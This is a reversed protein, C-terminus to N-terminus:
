RRGRAAATEDFDFSRSSGPEQGVDILHVGPVSALRGFLEPPIVTRDAPGHGRHVAVKYDGPLAAIEAAWRAALAPEPKLYRGRPLTGPTIGLLGPLSMLYAHAEVPEDIASLDSLVRDVGDARSMLPALEPRCALIIRAGAEKLVAAFRVFLFQDRDAPESVLLLTKSAVSGGEWRPGVPAFGAQFGELKLRADLDPWANFQGLALRVQALALRTPEDDPHHHLAGALLALAEGHRRQNALNAGLIRLGGPDNPALVLARRAAAEAESFRGTRDLALAMGLHVAPHDPGKYLFGIAEAPDDRHALAIGLLARAERNGPERALVGRSVREVDHYRGQWLRAEALGLHDDLHGTPDISVAREFWDAAEGFRGDRLAEWGLFSASGEDQAGGRLGPLFETEIM